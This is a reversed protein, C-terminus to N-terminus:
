HTLDILIVIIQERPGVLHDPHGAGDECHARVDGDEDTISFSRGSPKSFRVLSSKTRITTKCLENTVM